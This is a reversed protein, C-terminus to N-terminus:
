RPPNPFLTPEAAPESAIKEIQPYHHRLPEPVKV